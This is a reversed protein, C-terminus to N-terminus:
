FEQSSVEPTQWIPCTSVILPPAETAPDKTQFARDYRGAEEKSRTLWQEHARMHYVMISAWTTCMQHSLSVHHLTAGRTTHVQRQYVGLMSSFLSLKPAYALTFWHHALLEQAVTTEAYLAGQTYCAGFNYQVFLMHPKWAALMAQVWVTAKCTLSVILAYSRHFHM